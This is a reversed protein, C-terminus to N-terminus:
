DGVSVGQQMRSDLENYYVVSLTIMGNEIKFTQHIDLFIEKGTEKSKGFFVGWVFVWNGNYEPIEDRSVNVSMMRIRDYRIESSMDCINNINRIMDERNGPSEWRPGYEVYNTAHTKGLQASNRSTIANFYEKVVAVDKAGNPNITFIGHQAQITMSFMVLLMTSLIISTKM